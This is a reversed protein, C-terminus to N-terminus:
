DVITVNYIIDHSVFKKIKFVENGLKLDGIRLYNIPRFGHSIGADIRIDFSITNSKFAFYRYHPLKNQRKCDIEFDYTKSFGKLVAVYDNLNKYNNIIYIPDENNLNFASEDHHVNLKSIKIPWLKKIRNIFQLMLRLSFESQNFKDYYAVKFTRNSIKSLLDQKNNLNKIMLKAIDNSQINRPINNKIRSEYHNGSLDPLIFDSYNESKVEEVKFFKEDISSSWKENLNDYNGKSIYSITKEDQLNVSLHIPYEHITQHYGKKLKFTQSLKYVSLKQNTDIFDVDGEIVLNVNIRDKKLTHIWNIEDIKWEKINNNIHIDIKKIEYHYSLRKIEANLSGFVLSIKDNNPELEKPLKNDHVSDLWNKAKIRNLDEIHWQSSRDILCKTCAIKCDCKVLDLAHKIINKTHLEFQSAYGAGGRATDYIFITQYGKYKKIGFGLESEEIALYEALSKTFIVGISYALERDNVFSQDINKLRIETFDTKFTSGLLVHEKISQSKCLSEGNKDRGGRLRKHNKLLEKSTEVRGCDLCLCYGEGDGTNYFLIEANKENSSTRYSIFYNQKNVWPELNLLLPELYQPKSKESIVRTPKSYIDISFGAPEFLLTYKGRFNGLRVGQLSGLNDCKPCDDINEKLDLSRQYGCSKCGQIVKQKTYEDWNNKLVIGSSKYNFGDILINNGPAFETLARTIPYSPNEKTKKNWNKTKKNWNKTIDDITIKDFEVIETPM